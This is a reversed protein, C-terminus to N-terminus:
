AYKKNSNKLFLFWKLDDLKLWWLQSEYSASRESNNEYKKAILTNVGDRVDFYIISSVPLKTRIPFVQCSSFYLNKIRLKLCIRICLKGDAISFYVWVLPILFFVMEIKYGM